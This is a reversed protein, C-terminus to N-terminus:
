SDFSLDREWLWAELEALISRGANPVRLVDRRALAAVRGPLLRDREAPDTETEVIMSPLVNRARVSLAARNPQERRIREWHDGRALVQTVRGGSIGYKAAILRRPEGKARLAAMQAGRRDAASPQASPAPQPPRRVEMTRSGDIWIRVAELDEAEIMARARRKMEEVDRAILTSIAVDVKPGVRYVAFEPM